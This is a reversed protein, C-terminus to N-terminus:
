LRHKVAVDRLHLHFQLLLCLFGGGNGELRNQDHLERVLLFLTGTISPLPSGPPVQGGLQAHQHLGHRHTQRAPRVARCRHVLLHPRPGARLCLDPLVGAPGAPEAARPGPAAYHVCVPTLRLPISSSFPLPFGSSVAFVLGQVRLCIEACM